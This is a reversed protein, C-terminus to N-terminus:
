AFSPSKSGGERSNKKALQLGCGNLLFHLSKALTHQGPHVQRSSASLRVSRQCTLTTQIKAMAPAHPRSVRSERTPHAARM